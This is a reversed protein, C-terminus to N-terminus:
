ITSKLKAKWWRQPIEQNCATLYDEYDCPLLTTKTVKNSLKSFFPIEVWWRETKKNKYFIIDEIDLPVIYKLYNEKVGFPFDNARYQYGEFFYWIIQAILLSETLTSQHNFIGFVSVKDSIGAYRSLACVEKGNLGNPAFIHFNGSSSSEVSTLDLSVIDANRFIPESITIKNSIEGLRYAEFHLKDILDIDEQSNFYTQYGINSYNLLNNPEEIIIKSIYNSNNIPENVNGIDFKKDICVLNVMQELEDFARYIPYTLDQSGGIIILLIKQKLLYVVIRNLAYYTDDISEGAVINGLDAMKMDWNGPYLAYLQKRIHVLKVINYDIDDLVGIIAIKINDLDPFSESTHKELVNGLQNQAIESLYDEVESEIPKLFELNM